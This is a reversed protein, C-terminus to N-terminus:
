DRPGPSFGAAVAATETDFCRDGEAPNIRVRHYDRWGRLHYVRRGARNVNGKVVCDGTTVQQERAERRRWDWPTEFESDWLGREAARATAEQGSYADSYRRYALAMGIEVLMANINVDARFCTALARGYDDTEQWHCNIPRGAVLMSLSEAAAQGCRWTKGNVRCTQRGEPADIGFLRVEDNGLFFSDGDVVRM